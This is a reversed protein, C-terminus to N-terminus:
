HSKRLPYIMEPNCDNSIKFTAYLDVITGTSSIFLLKYYNFNNVFVNSQLELAITLEQGIIPLPYRYTYLVLWSSCETLQRRVPHTQRWWLRITTFGDRCIQAAERSLARLEVVITQGALTTMLTLLICYPKGPSNHTSTHPSVFEYSMEKVFPEFSM